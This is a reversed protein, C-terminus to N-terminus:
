DQTSSEGPRSGQPCVQALTLATQAQSTEPAKSVSSSPPAATPTATAPTAVLGARRASQKVRREALIDRNMDELDKNLNGVEMNGLEGVSIPHSSKSQSLPSLDSFIPDSTGLRAAKPRSSTEAVGVTKRKRILPVEPSGGEERSLPSEVGISITRSLDQSNDTVSM